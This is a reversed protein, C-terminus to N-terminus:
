GHTNRFKGRRRRGASASVHKHPLLKALFSSVNSPDCTRSSKKWSIRYKSLILKEMRQLLLYICLNKFSPSLSFLIQRWVIQEMIFKVIAVKSTSTYTDSVCNSLTWSGWLHLSWAVSIQEMAERKTERQKMRLIEKKGEESIILSTQTVPTRQKPILLKMSPWSSASFYPPIGKRPSVSREYSM